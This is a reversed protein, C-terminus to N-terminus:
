LLNSQVTTQWFSTLCCCPPSVVNQSLAQKLHVSFWYHTINFLLSLHDHFTTFHQFHVPINLFTCTTILHQHLPLLSDVRLNVGKPWSTDLTTIWHSERITRLVTDDRRLKKIVMVQLDDAIHHPSTFHVAVPKESRKHRIDAWHNDIRENLLQECIPPWM